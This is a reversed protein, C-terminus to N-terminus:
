LDGPAGDLLEVDDEFSDDFLSDDEDLSDDELLEVDSVAASHDQAQGDQTWHRPQGVYRLASRIRGGRLVGSAPNLGRLGIGPTVRPGQHDEQSLTM